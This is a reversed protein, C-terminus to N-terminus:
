KEVVPASRDANLPNLLFICLRSDALYNTATCILKLADLVLFITKDLGSPRDAFDM